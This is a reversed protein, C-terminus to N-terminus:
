TQRDNSVRPTKPSGSQSRPGHPFGLKTLIHEVHGEATRQSIVLKAAIQKNTLGKAILDVVQRERRTLSARSGSAQTADTPQEGLAYSVAEDMGIEDGHRFASDYGRAGLASRALRVCEDRYQPMQFVTPSGVSRWLGDAAGLLVAARKADGGDGVMWAMAKLSLAAIM